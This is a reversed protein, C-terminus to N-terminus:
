PAARGAPTTKYNCLVRWAEARDPDNGFERQWAGTTQPRCVAWVALRLSEDAARATEENAANRFSVYGACGGLLLTLFVVLAARM